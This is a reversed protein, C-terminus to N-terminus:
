WSGSAGGGGSSGGGFGGFSGGSSGGWTSGGTWWPPTSGSSRAERYASSVAFDVILGIVILPIASILAVSVGAFLAVVGAGVAGFVGGLWWDKTRSMISVVWAGVFFIMYGIFGIDEFSFNASEEIPPVASPDRILLLLSAVGNKIGSDYDGDRFSPLIDDRIIRSAYADPVTGEYGYGVEVRVDRDEIAVLLLIGTNTDAGGVGWERFLTNAYSEIDDGDLSPVVAVAIEGGTEKTFTELETNLTTVTEFSLVGAFDNVYGTPEGPSVYAFASSAAFAFVLIFFSSRLM